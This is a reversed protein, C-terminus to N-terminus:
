ENELARIESDAQRLRIALTHAIAAFLQQGLRPHVSAVADLKARSLAYLQMPAEAIATASRAGTDLFAMDGFFDGRGFTAIHLLSGDDGAALIRVKGCRIFYLEDTTEGQRFVIEGAAVSREVLVAALAGRTEEKRGRVFEFDDLGLAPEAQASKRGAADLLQEEAWELADSLAAFVRANSTETVLGVEGFYARLDQGSPLTKPLNSFLLYGGRERLQAEMRELLHV